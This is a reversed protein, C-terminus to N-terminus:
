LWTSPMSVRQTMNGFRRNLAKRACDRLGPILEPWDAQPNHLLPVLSRGDLSAAVEPPVKAGALEALTPFVDVHAAFKDVDGPKLHPPANIAALLAERSGKVPEVPTVVVGTGDPLDADGELIVAGARVTGRYTAQAM